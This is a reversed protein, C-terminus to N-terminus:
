ADLLHGFEAPHDHALRIHYTAPVSARRLVWQGVCQRTVGLREATIARSGYAKIVKKPCVFKRKRAM